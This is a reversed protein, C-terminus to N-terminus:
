EEGPELRGAEADEEFHEMVQQLWDAILDVTISLRELIFLGHVPKVEQRYKRALDATDRLKLLVDDLKEIDGM